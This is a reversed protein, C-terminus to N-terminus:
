ANKYGKCPCTVGDDICFTKDGAIVPKRHRAPVHHCDACLASKAPPVAFDGVSQYKQPKFIDVIHAWLSM